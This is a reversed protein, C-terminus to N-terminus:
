ILIVRLHGHGPRRSQGPGVLGTATTAGVGHVCAPRHPTSSFDPSRPVGLMRGKPGVRIAACVDGSGALFGVVRNAREMAAVLGGLLSGLWGFGLVVVGALVAGAVDVDGCDIGLM